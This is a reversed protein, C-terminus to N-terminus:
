EGKKLIDYIIMIESDPIIVDFGKELKKFADQISRIHVEDYINHSNDQHKLPINNVLRNVLSGVHLFLGVKQDISLDYIADLTDIAEPLVKKLIAKDLNVEQSLYDLMQDFDISEVQINDVILHNLAEANMEFVKSVPIFPIGFMKPDYTGIIAQITHYKKIELIEKILKKRDSIALPYIKIDDRYNQQMYNKLEVAGGEGTHCLTIIAMNGSKDGKMEQRLSSMLNHYVDDINDNMSSRRSAEIGFLTVPMYILRIPFNLEESLRELLTKLSGMDYMVIVGSGTNIEILKNKIEAYAKEYGTELSMDYAYTNEVQVLDNIVKALSSATADGHMAILLQPYSKSEKNDDKIFFMTLMKTESDSIEIDHNGKLIEKIKLANKYEVPHKEILHNLRTLELQTNRKKSKLLSSIHLCLGYAVSNSYKLNTEREIETMVSVVSEIIRKDAVKSLQDINLYEDKIDSKFESIISNIEQTLIEDITDKDVNNQTLSKIRTNLYDYFDQTYHNTSQDASSTNYILEEKKPLIGELKERYKKYRFAASQISDDFDELVLKITPSKTDYVRLYATAVAVKISRELYKLNHNNEVLMLGYIVNRPITITYKTSIVEDIFMAEILDFREKLGRDSLSPLHIKVPIKTVLSQFLNPNNDGDMTIITIVNKPSSQKGDPLRYSGTELFDNIVSIARLDLSEINEIVLISNQAAEVLNIHPTHHNEGFITQLLELTNNIYHRCNIKVFQSENSIRKSQKAFEFMKRTLLSKGSGMNGVILSNLSKGPYLIAAKALKIANGISGDYGVLTGFPDSEKSDLPLAYYVPRTNTKVIRDEQVLTNLIASVNSRQMNLKKAISLTDLQEVGLACSEKILDYITEKSTKIMKEM